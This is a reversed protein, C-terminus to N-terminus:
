HLDRSIPEGIAQSIAFKNALIASLKHRASLIDSTKIDNQSLASVALSHYMQASVSLLNAFAVLEEHSFAVNVQLPDIPALVNVTTTVEELPLEVKNTTGEIIAESDKLDKKSSIKKLKAKKAM